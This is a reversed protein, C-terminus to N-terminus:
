CSPPCNPPMEIPGGALAPLLLFTASLVLLAVVFFAIARPSLLLLTPM